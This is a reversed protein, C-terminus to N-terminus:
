DIGGYDWNWDGFEGFVENYFGLLSIEVVWEVGNLKVVM